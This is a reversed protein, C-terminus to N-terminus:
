IRMRLAENEKLLAREKSDDGGGVKQELLKAYKVREKKLEEELGRISQKHAGNEEMLDTLVREKEMEKLKNFNYPLHKQDSSM